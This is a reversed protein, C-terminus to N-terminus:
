PPHVRKGPIRHRRRRRGPDTCNPDAPRVRSDDSRNRSTQRLLVAAPAAQRVSVARSVAARLPGLFRFHGVLRLRVRRSASPLRGLVSSVSVAVTRSGSLVSVAVTRSGSWAGVDVASFADFLELLHDGGYDVGTDTWQCSRDGPRLITQGANLFVAVLGVGVRCPLETRVLVVIDLLRDRPQDELRDFRGANVTEKGPETPEYRHWQGNGRVHRPRKTMLARRAAAM